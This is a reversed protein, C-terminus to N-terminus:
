FPETDRIVGARSWASRGDKVRSVARLVYQGGEMSAVAAAIVAVVEPPIGEEVVPAPAAPPQPIAKVSAESAKKGARKKELSDFFRGQLSIILTLLLLILFVLAIGVLVVVPDSPYEATDLLVPNGM